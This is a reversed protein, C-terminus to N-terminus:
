LYDNIKNKLFMLEFFKDMRLYNEFVARAAKQMKSFQEAGINNYFDATIKDIKDIKKYDVFLVFNDYNILKELPLVCDTNIFLPVRGASLIEYFRFSFNGNGKVVLAFDSDNINKIYDLRAEQAPIEISKRHGSYFNRIIFNGKVLKSGTLTKIAEKRFLLGQKKAAYESNASTIKKIDFIFNKVKVKIAQRVGNFDAWGCFGVVPVNAAKERTNFQHVDSLDEVYAPMIIENKKKKYKYQSTRFIVSNPIKIEEDSDGEAFIIIKKNYKESLFSFNKIYEKNSKVFFYNHPILLFDSQEPNDVIDLVPKKYHRFAGLSFPRSPKEALGLNPYLLPVYSYKLLESIYIKIMIQKRHLSLSCAAM